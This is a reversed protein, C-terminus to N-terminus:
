TTHAHTHSALDAIPYHKEPVRPPWPSLQHVRGVGVAEVPHSRQANSHEKRTRVVFDAGFLCRHTKERENGKNESKPSKNESETQTQTEKEHGGEGMQQNNITPKMPPM